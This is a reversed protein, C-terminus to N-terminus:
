DDYVDEMVPSDLAHCYLPRGWFWNSVAVGEGYPQRGYLWRIEGDKTLLCYKGNRGDTLPDLGEDWAEIANRSDSAYRGNVYDIAIGNHAMYGESCAFPHCNKECVSGHTALRFHGLTASAKLEDWHSYIYALVKRNDPNRYRHLREGDHWAVGGGDPNAWRMETLDQETPMYGPEATWIVCM